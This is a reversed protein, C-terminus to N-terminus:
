HGATTSCNFGAAPAGPVQYCALETAALTAQGTFPSIGTTRYKRVDVPRILHIGRSFLYSFEAAFGGGLDQQLATSVQYTEPNQYNEGIRIRAELPRGPTTVLGFQTLDSAQIQRTGIVGQALLTQYIAATSYLGPLTIASVVININFPETGSALTNTVNTIQNDIQGTFNGCRCSIGNKRQQFIGRCESM